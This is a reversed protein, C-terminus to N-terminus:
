PATFYLALGLTEAPEVLPLVSDRLGRPDATGVLRQRASSGDSAVIARRPHMWRRNRLHYAHEYQGIM